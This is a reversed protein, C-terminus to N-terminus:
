LPQVLVLYSRMRSPEVRKEMHSCNFHLQFEPTLVEIAAWNWDATQVSTCETLIGSKIYGEDGDSKDPDAGFCRQLLFQSHTLPFVNFEGGVWEEATTTKTLFLYLDNNYIKNHPHQGWDSGKTLFYM